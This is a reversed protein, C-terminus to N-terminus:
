ATIGRVEDDIRVPEASAAGAIRHTFTVDGLDHGRDRFFLSPAVASLLTGNVM